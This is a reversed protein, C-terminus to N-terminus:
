EILLSVETHCSWCRAEYLDSGGIHIENLSNTKRQTYAATKQCNVCISTCKEIKTAWTVMGLIEECPNCSATMELSSVLITKGIRFLRILAESVNDIMFAEDVAIIDYDEESKTLFEIIDDGKSVNVADMKYGNHSIVENVSYRDDMKPKFLVTRKKMYHFRDLHSLLRSTKGSFMPGLFLIFENESM